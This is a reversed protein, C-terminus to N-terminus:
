VDTADTYNIGHANTLTKTYMYGQQVINSSDPSLVSVAFYDAFATSDTVEIPFKLAPEKPPTAHRAITDKFVEMHVICTENDRYYDIDRIKHYAESCTVDSGFVVAKQIAM